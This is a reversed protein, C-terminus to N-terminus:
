SSPGIDRLSIPLVRWVAARTMPSCCLARRSALPGRRSTDAGSALGLPPQWGLCPASGRPLAATRAAPAPTKGLRQNSRM